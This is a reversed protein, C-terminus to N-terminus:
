RMAQYADICANLQRIANDGDAAIAVLADSATPDLEARAQDSHGAASAPAQVTVAAPCKAPVSLRVAGSRVSTRLVDVKSQADDQAKRLAVAGANVQEGLALERAQAAQQAKAWEAQMKDIVLQQEDHGAVHGKHYGFAGVAAMVAALVLALIGYPM